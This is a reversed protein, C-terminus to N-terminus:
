SHTLKDIGLRKAKRRIRSLTNDISKYTCGLHTALATWPTRNVCWAQFVTREKPSLAALLRALAVRANHDSTTAIAPDSPPATPLTDEITATDLNLAYHDHHKQLSTILERRVSLAMYTAWTAGRNPDFRQIAKTLGILGISIMDARDHGPLSFHSAIQVVTPYASQTLTAAAAQDGDRAAFILLHLHRGPRAVPAYQRHTPTM